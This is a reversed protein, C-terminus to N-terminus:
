EFCCDEEDISSSADNAAASVFFILARLTSTNINSRLIAANAVVPTYIKETWCSDVLNSISKVVFKMTMMALGKVSGFGAHISQGERSVTRNRAHEAWNRGGGGVGNRADLNVFDVANQTPSTYM